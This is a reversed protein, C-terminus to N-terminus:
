GLKELILDLKYQIDQLIVSYDVDNTSFARAMMPQVEEVVEEPKNMEEIYQIYATVVNDDSTDKDLKLISKITDVSEINTVMNTIEDRVLFIRRANKFFNDELIKEAEVDNISSQKDWYETIM